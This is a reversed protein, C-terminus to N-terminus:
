VYKRWFGNSGCLQEKVDKVLSSDQLHHMKLDTAFNIDYFIWTKNM